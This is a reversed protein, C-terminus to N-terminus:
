GCFGCSGCHLREHDHVRVVGASLPFVMFSRFMEICFHIVVVVDVAVYISWYEFVSPTCSYTPVM